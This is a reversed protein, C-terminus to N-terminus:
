YRGERMGNGLRFSVIRRWRNEGWEKKLYKKM